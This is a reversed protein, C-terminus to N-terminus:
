DTRQRKLQYSRVTEADVPTITMGGADIGELLQKAVTGTWCAPIGWPSVRCMRGGPGLVVTDASRAVRVSSYVHILLVMRRDPFPDQGPQDAPYHRGDPLQNNVQAATFREM